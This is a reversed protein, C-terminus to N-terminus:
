FVTLLPKYSMHCNEYMEGQWWADYDRWDEREDMGQQIARLKQNNRGLRALKKLIATKEYNSVRKGSGSAGTMGKILGKHNM